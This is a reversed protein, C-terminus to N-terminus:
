FFIKGWNFHNRFRFPSYAKWSALFVPCIFTDQAEPLKIAVASLTSLVQAQSRILGTGRHSETGHTTVASLKGTMRHRQIVWVQVHLLWAAGASGQKPVCRDTPNLICANDLSGHQYKLRLFSPTQLHFQRSRPYSKNYISNWQLWMYEDKTYHIKSKHSFLLSFWQSLFETLQLIVSVKKVKIFYSQWSRNYFLDAAWHAHFTLCGYIMWYQIQFYLLIFLNDERAVSSSM